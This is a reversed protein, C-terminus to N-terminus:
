GIKKFIMELPKKMQKTQKQELLSVSFYLATESKIDISTSLSVTMEIQRTRKNM